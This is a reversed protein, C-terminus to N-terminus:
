ATDGSGDDDLEDKRLRDGRSPEKVHAPEALALIHKCAAIRGRIAATQVESNTLSELQNRAGALLAEVDARVRRWTASHVDDRTLPM